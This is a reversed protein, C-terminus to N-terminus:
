AHCTFLHALGGGIGGSGIRASGSAQCEDGLEPGIEALIAARDDPKREEDEDAEDGDEGADDSWVSRVVLEAVRQQLRRYELVPAFPAEQEAGVRDAAVHERADDEAAAIRE